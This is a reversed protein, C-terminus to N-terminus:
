DEKFNISWHKLNHAEAGNIVALYNMEYNDIMQLRNFQDYLQYVTLGWINFLNISPHKAAIGSIIGGFSLGNKVPKIKKKELELKEAIKKAKDSSYSKTKTEKLCYQKVIVQTLGEYNDPTIEGGKDTKYKGESFLVKGKLVISLAWSMLLVNNQSPESSFWDKEGSKQSEFTLLSILASFNDEGIEAIEALTLPYIYGVGVIHVPTGRLLTLENIILNM